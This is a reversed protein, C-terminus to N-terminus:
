ILEACLHLQIFYFLGALIYKYKDLCVKNYQEFTFSLSCITDAKLKEWM